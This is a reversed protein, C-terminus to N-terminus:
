DAEAIAVEGREIFFIPTGPVISLRMYEDEAGIVEKDRTEIDVVGSSLYRPLLLFKDLRSSM